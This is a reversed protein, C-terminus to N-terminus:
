DDLLLKRNVPSSAPSLLHNGGPHISPHDSLLRNQAKTPPPPIHKRSDPRQEAGWPARCFGAGGGEDKGRGAGMCLPLQSSTHYGDIQGLLGNGRSM